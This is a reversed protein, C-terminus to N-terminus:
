RSGQYARLAKLNNIVRDEFAYLLSSYMGGPFIWYRTHERCLSTWKMKYDENMGLWNYEAVGSELCQKIIETHLFESPSLERFEQKYGNKYAYMRNDYLMSYSFAIPNEKLKLVWISTWGSAAAAQAFCTYFAMNDSSNAIATGEKYKWTNRSIELVLDMAGAINESTYKEISYDGLEEFKRANSRIKTRLKSPRAEFYKEWTGELPIYPSSNGAFALHKTGRESLVERLLGETVSGNPLYDLFLIDYGNSGGDLLHLLMAEALPRDKGAMIFGSDNSYNSAIFTLARAPLGRFKTKTIMCPALATIEGDERFAPIYLGNEKGHVQWWCDMWEHTMYPHNVDSRSLLANWAGKLKLFDGYGTIIDMEM